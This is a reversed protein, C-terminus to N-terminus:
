FEFAAGCESCVAFCRYELPRLRHKFGEHFGIPSNCYPCEELDSVPVDNHNIYRRFGDRLLSMKLQSYLTKTYIGEAVKM